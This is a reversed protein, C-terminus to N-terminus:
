LGSASTPQTKTQDSVFHLDPCAESECTVTLPVRAAMERTESPNALFSTASLLGATMYIAMVVYFLSRHSVPEPLTAQSVSPEGSKHSGKRTQSRCSLQTPM